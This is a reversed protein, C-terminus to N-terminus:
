FFDFYFFHKSEVEKISPMCGDLARGAAPLSTRLMSVVCFSSLLMEMYILGMM